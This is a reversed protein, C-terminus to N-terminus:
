VVEEVVNDAVEALVSERVAQLLYPPVQPLDRDYVYVGSAPAKGVTGNARHRLGDVQLGTWSTLNGALNTRAILRTVRITGAHDTVLDFQEREDLAVTTTVRIGTDIKM